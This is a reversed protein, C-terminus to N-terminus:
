DSGGSSILDVLITLISEINPKILQPVCSIQPLYINIVNIDVVHKASVHLQYRHLLCIDVM